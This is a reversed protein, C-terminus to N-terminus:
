SIKVSMLCDCKIVYEKLNKNIQNKMNRMKKMKMKMKM